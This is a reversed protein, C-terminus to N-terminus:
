SFVPAPKAWEVLPKNNEAIDEAFAKARDEEAMAAHFRKTTLGGDSTLWRARPYDTTKVLVGHTGM